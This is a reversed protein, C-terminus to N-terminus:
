GSPPTLERAYVLKDDGPTYFDELRAELRYGCTRYFGQTPAYKELSSTEIYVRRGGLSRIREETGQLLRRGVGNGQQDPAVVIWYLDYSGVTCAITGFCTYGVLRGQEDDALLFRYDSATGKEIRDHILEAAVDVEDTRFFGTAEAMRRIAEEDDPRAAERLHIPAGSRAELRPRPPPPPRRSGQRSWPPPLFATSSGKRPSEPWVPRSCSALTRLSAPIPM